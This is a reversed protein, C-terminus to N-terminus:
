STGPEHVTAVVNRLLYHTQFPSWDAKHPYNLLQKSSISAETLFGSIIHRLSGNRQGCLLMHWCFDGIVEGVAATAADIYNAQPSLWPAQKQKKKKIM